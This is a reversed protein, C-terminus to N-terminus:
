FFRGQLYYFKFFGRVGREAERNKAIVYEIKMHEGYKDATKALEADNDKYNMLLVIDSDCEISGSDKLHFLDPNDCRSGERNLQSVLIIAIDNDLAIQKIRQSVGAVAEARGVKDSNCPILQLYDIVVLKIGYKKVYSKIQSAMQSVSKVEHLTRFELKELKSIASDLEAMYKESEGSKQIDKFNVKSLTQIIRKNIQKQPMELSYILVPFNDKSCARLAINLSLASKGVSTPAAVTMVSGFELKIKEDLHALHTKVYEKEYEGSAMREVEDKIEYLTNKIHSEDTNTRNDTAINSIKDLIIEPSDESELLDLGTMCGRRIKRLKSKQLVIDIYHNVSFPTDVKNSIRIIDYNINEEDSLQDCITVTDIVTGKDALAGMAQWIKKNTLNYFDEVQLRSSIENYIDSNNNVFCCGLLAEEAEENHPVKKKLM